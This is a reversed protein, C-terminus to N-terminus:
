EVLGTQTPASSLPMPPYPMTGCRTLVVAGLGIIGLVLNFLWGLCPVQALLTIIAVGVVARLLAAQDSLRLSEFVRQGVVYGTAVWGFLWAAASALVLVFAIPIGICVIVLLPVVILLAALTLLGIGFDTPVAASIADSVVRVQQPVFVVVVVALAMMALLTVISWFIGRILSFLSSAWFQDRQREPGWTWGPMYRWGFSGLRMGEVVHGRVLAGEQQELAGGLVIVDTDVEASSRLIVDGGIASLSGTIHGAADVKGGMVFVDGRVLSNEELLVNGGFVTLDGELVEGSRLTYNQGFLVKGGTGDDASASTIVLATALLATLLAVKIKAM